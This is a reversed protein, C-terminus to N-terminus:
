GTFEDEMKYKKIIGSITGKSANFHRAIDIQKTGNNYMEIVILRDIKKQKEKYNLLKDNIESKHKEFFDIDSHELVHCNACLIDCKDIENKILIDLDEVTIVKRQFDAVHFDKTNSDRHHFTLSAPCKDYGCKICEVGGYELYINKYGRKYNFENENYHLERHCNQCLVLCKNMENELISLRSWRHSGFHFEKDDSKHHFTLKFINNEKCNECCGGLLNILSIKKAITLIKTSKRKKNM